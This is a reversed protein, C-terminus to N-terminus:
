GVEALTYSGTQLLGLSKNSHSVEPSRDCQVSQQRKRVVKGRGQHFVDLLSGTFYFEYPSIPFSLRLDLALM